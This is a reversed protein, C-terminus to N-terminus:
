ETEKQFSHNLISDRLNKPSACVERFMCGGWMACNDVNGLPWRSTECAELYDHAAQVMAERFEALDDPSRETIQRTFQPPSGRATLPKPKVQIGNVLFSTTDLGLAERAGLVYGSYQHNPKLRNFFDSGLQSTTKHDCPLIHGNARNILVLDITGFLRIELGSERHIPLEFLRETIPGQADCYVEYPDNIYTKFYHSLTYIGNAISRKDTDPLMALPQAVRIFEEIARYFFHDSPAPAGHVMASAFEYFRDPITRAERPNSYFVDLSAHIASGFTLAPSETKGRWGDHLYLKTKRKCSQMISLSSSNISVITLDALQRVDLMRKPRAQITPRVQAFDPKVITTESV